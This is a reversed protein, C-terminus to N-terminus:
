RRRICSARRLTVAHAHSRCTAQLLYCVISYAAVSQVFNRRARYFGRTHAGGYRRKFFAALSNFNSNSKKLADLSIANPVVQASLRPFSGLRM